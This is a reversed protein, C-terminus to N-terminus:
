VSAEVNSAPLLRCGLALLLAIGTIRLARWLGLEAQCRIYFARVRDGLATTILQHDRMRYCRALEATSLFAVNPFRNLTQSLAQKLENMAADVAAPEGLFNFRHTELLTARGARYKSALAHVVKDARHGFQPEFYDNRVIYSVGTDGVQGAFLRAVSAAVSGDQERGEYRHGPTVVVEIGAEIWAREVDLNWVFTPPVVVAAGEPFLARYTTVEHQVARAAQEGVIKPAPLTSGDVWRSQLHSPLSETAESDDQMLWRRVAEDTQAAKMVAAPWYHEMGHLQVSFVQQRCGENIVHLLDIYEPAALTKCQYTEAGNQRMAARDVSALVVGLTMVPRRGDRDRYQMLLAMLRTLANTQTIPGAGWDDSEIILVPRKLVPEQWLALLLPRYRLVVAAALAVWILILAFLWSMM